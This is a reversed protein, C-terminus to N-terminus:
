CFVHLYQHKGKSWSVMHFGSVSKASKGKGLPHNAPKMMNWGCKWSFVQEVAMAKQGGPSRATRGKSRMIFKKPSAGIRVRAPWWTCSLVPFEGPHISSTDSYWQLDMWGALWGWTFKVKSWQVYRCGKYKITHTYTWWPLVHSLAAMLVLPDIGVNSESSFYQPTQTTSSVDEFLMHQEWWLWNWVLVGKWKITPSDFM